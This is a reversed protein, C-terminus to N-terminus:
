SAIAFYTAVDHASDSAGADVNPACPSASTVLAALDTDHAGDDALSTDADTDTAVTLRNRDGPIVQVPRARAYEQLRAGSRRGGTRQDLGIGDMLRVGNADVQGRHTIVREGCLDRGIENATRTPMANCHSGTTVVDGIHAQGVVVDGIGSNAVGSDVQVCFAGGQAATRNHAVTAPIILGDAALLLAQAHLQTLSSGDFSTENLAIVQGGVDLARHDGASAVANRV